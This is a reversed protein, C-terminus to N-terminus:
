LDPINVREIVSPSLYERGLTLEVSNNFPDSVKFSVTDEYGVWGESKVGALRLRELVDIWAETQYFRVSLSKLGVAQPPPAPAGRGAWINLGIHHHYGGASLFLAGPYTRQTVDFGIIEHYFREGERLDSIHLHVHGIDTQPHVGQWKQSDYMAQSILDRVDLPDTTMAIQGDNQPWLKRPRDAYLEVGNGDPDALYLAESVKHDSFGQFPWESEMLRQFVLSLAIRDPFRIAIHYLGTTGKPKPIADKNAALIIHLPLEGNASLSVSDAQEQVIRFGLYEQYFELARGVSSVQLHVHGISTDDPLRPQM